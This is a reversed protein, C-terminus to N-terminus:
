VVIILLIVKGRKIALIGMCFGSRSKKQFSIHFFQIETKAYDLIFSNHELSGPYKKLAEDKNEKNIIKNLAPDFCKINIM